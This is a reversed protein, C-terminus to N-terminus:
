HLMEIGSFSTELWKELISQIVSDSVTLLRYAFVGFIMVSIIAKAVASIITVVNKTLKDSDGSINCTINNYVDRCNKSSIKLDTVEKNKVVRCLLREM